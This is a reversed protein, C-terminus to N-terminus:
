SSWPLLPLLRFTSYGSSRKPPLHLSVSHYIYIYIYIYVYVCMYM